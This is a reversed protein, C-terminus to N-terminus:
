LLSIMERQRNLYLYIMVELLKAAALALAEEWNLESFEGDSNRALPTTLRQTKLGDYTFRGKDALWEENVFENIRPLVRKIEAGRTDVQINAGLADLVDISDYSKM